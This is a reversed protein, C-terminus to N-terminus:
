HLYTTSSQEMERVHAEALAASRKSDGAEIARAIAKHDAASQSTIRRAARSGEPPWAKKEADDLAELVKGFLEALLSNHAARAIMWHFERNQSQFQEIPTTARFARAAAVIEAREEASAREAAFSAVPVEIVQRVEFLEALELKSGGLDFDLESLQDSVYIRNGRRTLRGSFLLGQIAERVSTRAVGFQESLVREPPLRDGPPIAGSEIARSLQDRIEDIVSRRELPEPTLGRAQGPRESGSRTSATSGGTM